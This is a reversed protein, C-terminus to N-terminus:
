LKTSRKIEGIYIQYLGLGLFEMISYYIGDLGIKSLLRLLKPASLFRFIGIYFFDFIFTSQHIKKLSSFKDRVQKPTLWNEIPQQGQDSRDWIERLKGNPTTLVLFGGERLLHSVTRSFLDHDPIHEIVESSVVLDFNEAPRWELINASIFEVDPWETSAKKVADTSLDVGTVAGFKLLESSLWGRGCGLDCIKIERKPLMPMIKAIASLIESLRIIEHPSLSSKHEAWYKNYYERHESLLVENSM